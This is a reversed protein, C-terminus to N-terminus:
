VILVVATIGIDVYYVFPPLDRFVILVLAFFTSAGINMWGVWRPYGAQLLAVGFLVLAAITLIFYGGALWRPHLLGHIFADPYVSRLYVHWTWLLAGLFALLFMALSSTYAKGDHLHLFTFFMGVAAVIAGSGFLIQALKWAALGADIMELEKEPAHEAFVWSIPLFAAILFLLSGVLLVIGSVRETTM